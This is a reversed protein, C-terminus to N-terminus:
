LSGIVEPHVFPIVAAVKALIAGKMTKGHNTRDGLRVYRVFRKFDGSPPIAFRGNIILTNGGWMNQLMYSLASSSLAVDCDDRRKSSATIGERVSLRVARRLDDVWITTAAPKGALALARLTPGHHELNRRRYSAGSERLEEFTAPASAVLPRDPITAYDAAYREVASATPPESGVEWEDGPYLVVTTVDHAGLHEVVRSVRNAARNLFANEEHCFWVFSAFPIM